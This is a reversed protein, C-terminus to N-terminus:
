RTQLSVKDVKKVYNTITDVFEAHSWTLPSVSLPEGTYPHVQEAFVGSSLAHDAAWNILSLAESLDSKREAKAILWKAYWLTCIFWPNGPVNDLDRSKQFYYDNYYRAIGGVDTKVWLWDKMKTMTSIIKEDKASYVGFEFLGYVSSDLAEDFVLDGHEFSVGRRFYGKEKNYLYEELANKIITIGANCTKCFGSDNFVSGLKDASMLGAIVAATTFSFIARREEWLDYSERPLGNVYRHQTLFDGMPKILTPYLKKIFEKDGTHEYYVNLAHLVLATEDEQIPLSYKHNFTWPHWSSGLTKDPNYKHLLCGEEYLVNECFLFFPKTLYAYGAKILAIAVLAGDRPWMYSYTDKNFEMNDSDNAAIIAGEKDIQTKIILLSRKYLKTLRKDVKSLDIKISTLWKRQCMISHTLHEDVGKKIFGSQLEICESLNSGAVLYYTLPISSHPPIILDICMISSVKGQKIPNKELGWGPEVNEDINFDDLIPQDACNCIGLLFYTSRKYHIIANHKPHYFATDGIGDGYLHFDHHFCLRIKRKYDADNIVTLKRFFINKECFVNANFLIKLKKKKNIAKSETVLTENMYKQSREWENGNLWSIETGEMIAIRHAHGALHNYQGVHPYYIDRVQLWQDINVLLQQNGLAIFRAM